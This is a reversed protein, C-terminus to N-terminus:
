RCTSVQHYVEGVGEIERIEFGRRELMGRLKLNPEACSVAHVQWEVIGLDRQKALRSALAGIAPLVGEGGGDIQALEVVLRDDGKSFRGLIQASGVSVVLAERGFVLADVDSVPLELIEDATLGEFKVQDNKM